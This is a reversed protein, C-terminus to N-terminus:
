LSANIVEILWRRNHRYVFNYFLDYDTDAKNFHVSFTNNSQNYIKIKFPFYKVKEEAPYSLEDAM